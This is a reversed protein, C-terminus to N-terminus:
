PHVETLRYVKGRHDMVGSKVAEAELKSQAVAAFTFGAILGIAGGFAIGLLVTSRAAVVHITLENTSM